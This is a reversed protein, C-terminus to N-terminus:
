TQRAPKLDDGSSFGTFGNMEGGRSPRRSVGSGARFGQGLAQEAMANAPNEGWKRTCHNGDGGQHNRQQFQPQNDVPQRPGSQHSVVAGRASTSRLIAAGAVM